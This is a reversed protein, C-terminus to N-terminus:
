DVIPELSMIMTWNTCDTFAAGAANTDTLPNNSYMNILQINLNNTTPKTIIKPVNYDFDCSFTNGISYTSVSQIDRNVFGLILSQSKTTTEYSLSTSSFNVLIKINSNCLTYLTYSGNQTGSVTDKYYGASTQFSFSVKYFNINDKPLINDWLINFSANNNTSGALKDMSNIYFNYAKVM